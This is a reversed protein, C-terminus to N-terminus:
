LFDNGAWSVDIDPGDDPDAGGPTYTQDLILDDDEKEDESGFENLLDDLSVKPASGLIFLFISLFVFFLHM